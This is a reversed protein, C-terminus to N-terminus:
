RKKGKGKDAAAAIDPPVELPPPRPGDPHFPARTLCFVDLSLVYRKDLPRRATVAITLTHTGSKLDAHGLSSWVFKGAYAGGESPADRTPSPDGDDLQYTYPSTGPDGPPSGAVWLTYHGPANLRFKYVAYYGTASQSM